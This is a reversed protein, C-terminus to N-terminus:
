LLTQSCVASVVGPKVQIIQQCLLLREEYVTTSCTLTFKTRPHSM